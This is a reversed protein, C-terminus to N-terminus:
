SRSLGVLRSNRDAEALPVHFRITTGQDSQVAFTGGVAAIRKAMNRMGNGEPKGPVREIGKGNDAIVVTLGNEWNMRLTTKGAQAHKVVNHLAEKVVLFLGRRVDADLGIPPWPGPAEVLLAMDNKTCYDRAYATTYHVLEELNSNEGKQAWIIQRMNSMLEDAIIAQDAFHVRKAPDTEAELAMESRLKLASLGAGMDDHIDRGVQERVRLQGIVNEQNLREMEIAALKREQARRKVFSYALMVLLLLVAGSAAMVINRVKRQYRDKNELEAAAAAEKIDFDYQMQATVLAATNEANFLSDRISTLRLQDEFAQRFDGRATDVQIRGAFAEKQLDLSGVELAIAVARDAADAAKDLLGASGYLSALNVLSTSIGPRDDIAEKLALAEQECALAAATGEEAMLLVSMNTLVTAIGYPHEMKRFIALSVRYQALAEKRQGLKKLVNAINAGIAAIPWQEGKEVFIAQALRYNELARAPDGQEDYLSGINAYQGAIGKTAGIEQFLRLAAFSASLAEKKDGQLRRCNGIGQYAVGMCDKDGMSDCVVLARRYYVLAKAYDPEAMAKCNLGQGLAKGNRTTRALAMLEDALTDTRGPRVDAYRNALLYLLRARATDVKTTRLLTELSDDSLQGRVPLQASYLLILLGLAFRVM